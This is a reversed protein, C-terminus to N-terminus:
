RRFEVLKAGSDAIERNIRPTLKGTKPVAGALTFFLFMLGPERLPYDVFSHSLVSIVGLGWVSRFAPRVLSFVLAALLLTFPIGGEATWQAWDNHAENVYVNSDFTAFRPFLVPWTGMGSGFWPHLPIMKLTAELLNRRLAFPNREAFRSRVKETGAVLAAGAMLVLVVAVIAAISKVPMRRRAVMLVLFVLFEMSVLLVGARSGSVLTAAFMAAYCLGGAVVEGEFVKWLAMPAALEMMAAFQNKYFFTGVVSDAVPIMGFLKGPTAYIQLTAAAALAASAWMMLNLFATRNRRRELIQSGLVFCAGGMIWEISALMTPWRVLTQHTALQLAGWGTLPVVLITQLPLAVRRALLAWLAAVLSVSAVAVCVGWYRPTWAVLIGAILAVSLAIALWRPSSKPPATM